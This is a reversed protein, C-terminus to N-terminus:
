HLIVTRASTRGGAAELRFLLVGAAIRHGKADLPQWTYRQEGPEAHGQAILALERGKVDYAALELPGATPLACRLELAGDERSAVALALGPTPAPSAATGLAIPAVGAPDAAFATWEGNGPLGAILLGAPSGAASADAIATGMGEEFRYYGVLGESAIDIVRDAIEALETPALARAWLRLEDLYGSFSPFDSGADHKEAGLVIYPGWPTVPNAVGENPYSIDDTSAGVSSQGDLAGDVVISKIGTAADRLCAVHHWADDLLMTEGELTHPSDAGAPARGTGFRVRGGALSIGWDQQNDAWIDRDVIVNGYIWDDGWSEGGGWGSTANDALTGRLWFEVTFDGAGLDCPASADPGPANDDIAIRARDQQDTGTGYFRLAHASGQGRAESGLVSVLLVLGLLTRSLGRSM